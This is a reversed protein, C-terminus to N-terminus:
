QFYEYYKQKLQDVIMLNPTRQKVNINKNYFFIDFLSGIDILFNNNGHSKFLEYILVNTTMSAAFLVINNEGINKNLKDIIFNKELYCNTQPIEIHKYNGLFNVKSLYKPGVVVINYKKIEEIFSKFQETNNRLMIQLFDSYQYTGVLYENDYLFDTYQNFEKNRSWRDLYQIFFSKENGFKLTELLEKGMQPFYSHNDCNKEVKLNRGISTQKIACLLEGDNFRSYSFFEKRKIKDLFFSADHDFFINKNNM